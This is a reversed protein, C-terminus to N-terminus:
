NFRPDNLEKPRWISVLKGLVADDLQQWDDIPLIVQALTATTMREYVNTLEELLEEMGPNHGVVMVRDYDGVLENLVNFYSSPDAHYLSRTVAIERDYGAYKAVTEATMIARVASSSIILDPILQERRLLAGMRPGDRKGRKNLPRDYDGLYSNKWSSKAHRLILLTKM